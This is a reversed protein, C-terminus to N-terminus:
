FFFCAMGGSLLVVVTRMMVSCPVTTQGSTDSAPTPSVPTEEAAAVAVAVAVPASTSPLGTVMTAVPAKTTTAASTAAATPPNVTTTPRKTWPATVPWKTPSKVPWKTPARVPWKTPAPVPWKTPARVPWQTPARVPWKTPAPVPAKTPPPVQATPIPVPGTATAKNELARLPFLVTHTDCTLTLGNPVNTCDVTYSGNACISCSQCGMDNVVVSCGNKGSTTEEVRVTHLPKRNNLITPDAQIAEVDTAEPFISFQVFRTAGLQPVAGPMKAAMAPPPISGEWISCLATGSCIECTGGNWLQASTTRHGIVLLLVAVVWPFSSVAVMITTPVFWVGFFHAALLGLLTSFTPGIPQQDNPSSDHQLPSNEYARELFHFKLADVNNWTGLKTGPVARSSQNM